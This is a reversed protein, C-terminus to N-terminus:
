AIDVLVFTIDDAQPAEEPHLDFVSQAVASAATKTDMGLTKALIRRLTKIGVMTGEVSEFEYLGDTFCFIRTGPEVPVEAHGAQFADVRLGLPIGRLSVVGVKGTKDLILVPPAGANFIHVINGAEPVDIVAMTMHYRGETM